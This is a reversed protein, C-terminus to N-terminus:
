YEEPLVRDFERRLHAEAVEVPIDFFHHNWKGTHRNVCYDGLLKVACEADDFRTAVWAGTSTDTNPHVSVLLRGARTDISYNYISTSTPQCGLEEVVKQLHEAYALNAQLKKHARKM